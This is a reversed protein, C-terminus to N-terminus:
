NAGTPFHHGLRVEVHLRLGLEQESSLVIQLYIAMPLFHFRDVPVVM